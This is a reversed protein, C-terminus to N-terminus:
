ESNSNGLGLGGLLGILSGLEKLGDLDDPTSSNPNNSGPVTNSKATPIAPGRNGVGAYVSALAAETLERVSADKEGSKKGNQRM